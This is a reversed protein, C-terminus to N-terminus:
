QNGFVEHAFIWGAIMGFILSLFPGHREVGQISSIFSAIAMLVLLVTEYNPRHVRRHRPASKTAPSLQTLQIPTNAQNAPGAQAAPGIAVGVTSASVPSFAWTSSSSLSSLTASTTTSCPLDKQKDPDFCLASKLKITSTTPHSTSRSTSTSIAHSQSDVPALSTITPPSTSSQSVTHSPISPLPIVTLVDIEWM